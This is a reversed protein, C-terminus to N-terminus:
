RNPEAAVVRAAFRGLSLEVRDVSGVENCTVKQGSLDQVYYLKGGETRYTQQAKIEDRQM